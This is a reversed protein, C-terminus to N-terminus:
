TKRQLDIIDVLKLEGKEGWGAVGNQIQPRVAMYWGWSRRDLEEKSLMQAWSRYLKDLAALLLGLNREKEANLSAITKKQGPSSSVSVFSKLLYSRASQATHVPLETSSAGPVGSKGRGSSSRLAELDLGWLAPSIDHEQMVTNSSANSDSTSSPEELKIPKPTGGSMDVLDINHSNERWDYGWRKMVRLDRGMVRVTPQGQGWGDEEASNGKELGLSVAKRRSNVSVVAQALSLRSSLPQEPMTYQLLVVAFALVLPARNTRLTIKRLEEETASVSPLALSEEIAAPTPFGEVGGARGISAKKRKNPSAEETETATRKKSLRKAANLVQKAYKGDTFIMQIAQLDAKAILSPSQRSLHPNM